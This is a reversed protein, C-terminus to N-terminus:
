FLFCKNEENKIKPFPGLSVRIAEDFLNKLGTQNIASTEIYTAAGIEKALQSGMEFTIPSKEKSILNQIIQPDDRLDIKNGVM